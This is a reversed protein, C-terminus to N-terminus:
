QVERQVSSVQLKGTFRTRAYTVTVRDGNNTTEFLTRAVPFRTEENGIRLTMVYADSTLQPIVRTRGGIYETRYGKKAPVHDKGIVIASGSEKSLNVSDLRSFGFYGLVCVIIAGGLLPMVNGSNM